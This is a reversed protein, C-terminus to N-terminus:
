ADKAPTFRAALRFLVAQGTVNETHPPEVTFGRKRLASAIADADGHTRVEGDLQLRDGSIQIKLIRCRLETPLSALAEHIVTLASAQAPLKGGARGSMGALRRHESEMRARIGVPLKGPGPLAQRYVKEQEGRYASALQEFRHARYFLGAVATVLLLASVCAFMKLPKRIAWNPDRPALADRRLEIWASDSGSLINEAERIAAEALDLPEAQECAVEPCQDTEAVLEPPLGLCRIQFGNAARLAEARLWSTFSPGDAPLAHWRQPKAQSWAFLELREEHHWVIWEAESLSCTSALHQLALLAAPAISAVPLGRSELGDVLPAVRATEVCVGLALGSGAIFDGVFDETAVPMWQELEFLVAQREHRRAAPVPLAAALCNEASLALLVSGQLGAELFAREASEALVDPHALDGELDVLTPQNDQLYALRWGSATALLLGHGPM